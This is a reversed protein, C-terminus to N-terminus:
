PHGYSVMFEVLKPYHVGNWKMPAIKMHVMSTALFASCALNKSMLHLVDAQKRSLEPQIIQTQQDIQAHDM